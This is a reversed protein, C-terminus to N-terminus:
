KKISKETSKIYQMILIELKQTNQLIEINLKKLYEIEILKKNANVEDRTCNM